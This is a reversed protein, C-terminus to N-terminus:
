AGKTAATAAPPVSFEVTVATRGATSGAGTTVLVANFTTGAAFDDPDETDLGFVQDGGTGDVDIDDGYATLTGTYGLDLVTTDAGWAVTTEWAVRHIVGGAPIVLQGTYTGAGATETFTIRRAQVNGAAAIDAEIDAVAAALDSDAEGSDVTVILEDNDGFASSLAVNEGSVLRVNRAEKLAGSDVQVKM